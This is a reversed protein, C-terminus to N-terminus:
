IPSYGVAKAIWYVVKGFAEVGIQCFTTLTPVLVMGLGAAYFGTVVRRTKPDAEKQAEVYATMRAALTMEDVEDGAHMHHKLFREIDGQRQQNITKEEKAVFEYATGHQKIEAPCRVNFIIQAIAIFTAGFYLWYVRWLSFVGDADIVLEFYENAAEGFSILSM